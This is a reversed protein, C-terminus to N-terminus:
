AAQQQREARWYVPAQGIYGLGPEAGSEALQTPDLGWLGALRMVHTETPYLVIEGGADGELDRVGRLEFMKLALSKEGASIRGRKVIVGEDSIAFARSIRGKLVRAWAYFDILPYTFYYQVEQFEAALGEILPTWKDVFRAGLPHPLALGVVFVWGKVPPSVFIRNEGLDEHYVTGIGSQWNSSVVHSLDLTALVKHVDQTKIAIWSMKYGFSCPKDPVLDYIIKHPMVKPVLLLGIIAITAVVM